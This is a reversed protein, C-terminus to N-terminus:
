AVVNYSTQCKFRGTWLKPESHGSEVDIPPRYSGSSLRSFGDSSIEDSGYTSRRKEKGDM